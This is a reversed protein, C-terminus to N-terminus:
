ISDGQHGRRKAILGKPPSGGYLMSEISSKAAAEICGAMLHYVKSQPKM